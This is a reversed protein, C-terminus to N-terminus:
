PLALERGVALPHGNLDNAQEIRFVAERPDLTPYRRAAIVWLTDGPRVTYHRPPQAGTSPSAFSLMLAGCLVTASGLTVLRRM